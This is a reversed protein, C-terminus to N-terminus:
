KNGALVKTMLVEHQREIVLEGGGRGGYEGWGGGMRVVGGGYEGWGGDQGGGM